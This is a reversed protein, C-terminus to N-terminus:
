FAVSGLRFLGQLVTMEAWERPERIRGFAIMGHGNIQRALAILGADRQCLVIIRVSLCALMGFLIPRHHERGELCEQLVLGARALPLMHLVHQRVESCAIPSLHLAHRRLAELRNDGLRAASGGNPDREIRILEPADLLAMM